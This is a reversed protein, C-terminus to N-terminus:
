CEDPFALQLYVFKRSLTHPFYTNQPMLRYNECLTHMSM